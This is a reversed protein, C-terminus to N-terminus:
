KLKQKSLSVIKDMLNKASRNGFVAAHDIELGNMAKEINEPSLSLRKKLMHKSIKRLEDVEDDTYDGRKRRRATIQKKAVVLARNFNVSM